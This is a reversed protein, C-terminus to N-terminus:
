DRAQGRLGAQRVPEALAQAMARNARPLFHGDYPIVPLDGSAEAVAQVVGHFDLTPFSREEATALARADFDRSGFESLLSNPDPITAFIVEFGARQAEESFGDLYGALREMGEDVFGSDLLPGRSPRALMDHVFMVLASRRLMQVGQWTWWGIGEIRRGTDFSVPGSESLRAYTADIDREMLDNWYWCVVVVDPEIRPGLERLLALEQRTDYARHGANVVTWRAQADPTQLAEELYFPITEQDGVGQGYVLSDGLVLVRLEGERKPELESGRLGLANIQVPHHYTYHLEGPVMQWGRHPNAEVQLIPLQEALPAAILIRVLVEGVLFALTLSLGAVLLKKRWGSASSRAAM